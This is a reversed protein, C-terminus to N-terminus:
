PSDAGNMVHVMTTYAERERERDGREAQKLGTINHSTLHHFLQNETSSINDLDTYFDNGQTVRATESVGGGVCVSQM